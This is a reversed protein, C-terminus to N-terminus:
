NKNRFLQFLTEGLLYALKAGAQAEGDDDNDHKLVAVGNAQVESIRWALMNHTARQIKSSGRILQDLAAYVDRETSVHCLHAQFTSKRDVLPEGTIWKYRTTTKTDESASDLSEEQNKTLNSEPDNTSLAQTGSEEYENWTELAISCCAFGGEMGDLLCEQSAARIKAVTTEIRHKETPSSRYSSVQVGTETPYGSTLELTVFATESFNITWRLPFNSNTTTTEDGHCEDPYAAVIMEIDALARDLSEKEEM